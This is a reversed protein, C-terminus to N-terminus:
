LVMLNCGRIDSNDFRGMVYFTGPKDGFRGLDQTEIFSCTDLNALDIVNIGGTKSSGLNHDSIAFPDNIDRLLIRMSHGPAFLGNGHSYGQSLLETMGYESHIVPVGLSGTLIDHVEERLLETRRGKMGGTDMVTLHRIDKLFSLDFNSEALDLLAFTVGLLLVTKGDQSDAIQRLRHLMEGTNNLYFGSYESGSEEIFHQMMYVLSSNTRELYSPLLALIHFHNLDGYNQQFIRYSIAKYLPEDYLHHSSTIQGTTGSSRFVVSADSSHGTAVRHNKFFQIPLFPIETLASIRAPDVGLHRIYERYIPNYGAQYRFVRLALPEFDAPEVTVIQERLGARIEAITKNNQLEM